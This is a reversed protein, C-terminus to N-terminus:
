KQEGKKYKDARTDDWNFYGDEDHLIPLMVLGCSKVDELAQPDQMLDVVNFTVNNQELTEKVLKCNTCHSRTYLVLM